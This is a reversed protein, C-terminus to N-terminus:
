PIWMCSVVLSCQSSVCSPHSAYRETRIAFREAASTVVTRHKDPLYVMIYVVLKVAFVGFEFHRPYGFTSMQSNSM